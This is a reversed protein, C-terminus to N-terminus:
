RGGSLAFEKVTSYEAGTRRLHSEMLAISDVRTVAETLPPVRTLTAKEDASLRDKLRAITAHAHFRRKERELGIADFLADDVDRALAACPEAGSTVGYFLVRPDRLGPFAGFGGLELDFPAHRTAVQALAGTAAALGDPQTEGLFKLTIHWTAPDAWRWPPNGLPFDNIAARIRRRVTDSLHIAVFLRM